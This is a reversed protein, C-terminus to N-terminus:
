RCMWRSSRLGDRVLGGLPLCPSLRTPDTRVVGGTLVGQRPTGRRRLADALRRRVPLVRPRRVGAVRDRHRAARARDRRDTRRHHPRRARGRRVPVPPRVPGLGARRDPVAPGRLELLRRVRDARRAGARPGAHPVHLARAGARRVRPRRARRAGPAGGRRRRHRRLVRGRGRLRGLRRPALGGPRVPRAGRGRRRAARPVPGRHVPRRAPARRDRRVLLRPRGRGGAHVAQGRRGRARARAARVRDAAPRPGEAGARVPVRVRRRM